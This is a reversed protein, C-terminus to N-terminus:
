GTLAEVRDCHDHRSSRRVPEEIGVTLQHQLNGVVLHLGARGITLRGQVRPTLHLDLQTGGALFLM